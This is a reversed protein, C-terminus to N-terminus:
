MSLSPLSVTKHELTFNSFEGHAAFRVSMREYWQEVLCDIDGHMVEPFSFSCVVQPVESSVNTRSSCLKHDHEADISATLTATVKCVHLPMMDLCNDDSCADYWYLVPYDLLLGFLTTINIESPTVLRVVRSTAPEIPTELTQLQSCVLDSAIPREIQLQNCVLDVMAQVLDISRQEDVLLPETLQKSVDILRPRARKLNDILMKRNVIFIDDAVGVVTLQNQVLRNRFICDTFQQLTEAKISAYDFLFAPRIGRDVCIVDFAISKYRRACQKGLCGKSIQLWDGKEM